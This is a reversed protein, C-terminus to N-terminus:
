PYFKNNGKVMSKLLICPRYREEGYIEFLNQLAELVNKLGIDDGWKLLGKPYNVGKIMALDLDNKSALKLYFSDIAENIM